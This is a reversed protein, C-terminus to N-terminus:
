VVSAQGKFEVFPINTSHPNDNTAAVGLTIGNNGWGGAIGTVMWLDNELTTQDVDDCGSDNADTDTREIGIMILEGTDVDVPSSLELEEFTGSTTSSFAERALVAEVAQTGSNLRFIVFNGTVSSTDPMFRVHTISVPQRMDFMTGETDGNANGNGGADGATRFYDFNGLLIDQNYVRTEGATWAVQYAPNPITDEDVSLVTRWDALDNSGQLWWITPIYTTSADSTFAVEVIEIEGSVGYDQGLYVGATETIARAYTGTDNDWANVSDGGVGLSMDQASSTTDAGGVSSRFELERIDWYTPHPGRMYFRWYRFDTVDSFDLVTYLRQQRVTLRTTERGFVVFLKQTRVNFRTTERGFVVYLRQDKVKFPPSGGGTQFITAQWLSLM